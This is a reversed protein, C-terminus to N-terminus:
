VTGTTAAPNSEPTPAGNNAAAPRTRIWGVAALVVVVLPVAVALAWTVATMQEPLLRLGMYIAMALVFLAFGRRLSLVSLRHALKSGIVSGVLASGTVLGVLSWDLQVHQLHGLLGAGSQLAIVMLSTGIAARMPVGGLLALAPVVVFGGGAGVLGTMLGVAVGVLALKLGPRPTEEPAEPRPRLMMLGAVIMVAVFGALLANTPLLWAIRGGAFAGVMAAAAFHLGVRLRVQGKRAHQLAGFAATLAVVVLSSAIAEKGPLEAAYLLIPLTLISGGGGLLGLSLGVLISLLLVVTM